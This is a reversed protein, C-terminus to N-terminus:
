EMQAKYTETLMFIKINRTKGHIIFETESNEGLTCAAQDLRIKELPKKKKLFDMEDKYSTLLNKSEDLAFFM